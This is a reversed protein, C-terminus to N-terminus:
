EVGMDALMNAAEVYMDYTDIGEALHEKIGNIDFFAGAYFGGQVHAVHGPTLKSVLLEDNSPLFHMGSAIGVEVMAAEAKIHESAFMVFDDGAYDFQKARTVIKSCNAVTIAPVSAKAQVYQVPNLGTNVTFSVVVLGLVVLIAAMVVVIEEKLEKIKNIM